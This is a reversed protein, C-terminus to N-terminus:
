KRNGFGNPAFMGRLFEVYDQETKNDRAEIMSVIDPGAIYRLQQTGDTIANFITEAVQQASAINESGLSNFLANTENLFDTYHAPNVTPESDSFARQQFNTETYGPEIIKVKINQSDLEYALSESFGEIAYKSAVYVSVLPFPIKGVGSTINAIVGSQQERFHPLIARTVNMVGFVNVDFQDRITKDSMAEFIGSTGYGANNLLADIKGFREIGKGIAEQISQQQTVELPTVLINPSNILETEKEPSRMTAIVNWGKASFFQASAKGIGSSAGTILITKNM